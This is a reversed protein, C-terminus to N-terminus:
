RKSSPPKAPITQVLSFQRAALEIDILKISRFNEIRLRTIKM